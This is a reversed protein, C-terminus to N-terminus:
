YLSKTSIVLCFECHGLRVNDADDILKGVKGTVSFSNAKFFV